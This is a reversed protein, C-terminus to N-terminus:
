RFAENFYWRVSYKTVLHACFPTLGKYLSLAGETKVMNTAVSFAGRQGSLQLRTKTVDLPQLCCAEIVGGMMAGATRVVKSVEKQPAEQEVEKVANDSSVVKTSPAPTM